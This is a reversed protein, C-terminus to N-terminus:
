DDFRRYYAHNAVTLLEKDGRSDGYAYIDFHSLNGLTAELRNVKEPGYCNKGNFRGTVIGAHTELQTGIIQDFGMARGWPFLYTELSASLLVTPHGHAQHWQLRKMADPRLLKQIYQHAFRQGIQQLKQEHWGGFFHALLAEKARWNPMLKLAYAALVPSMRILGWCFRGRGAAMQLFPLLSDRRTLTGDFDFVAIAHGGDQQQNM